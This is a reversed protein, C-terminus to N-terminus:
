PLNPLAPWMIKTPFLPHLLCYRLSIVVRSATKTRRIPYCSMHGRELGGGGGGGGLVYVVKSLVGSPYLGGQVCFFRSM